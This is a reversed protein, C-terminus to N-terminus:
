YSIQEFHATCQGVPSLTGAGGQQGFVLWTNPAFVDAGATQQAATTSGVIMAQANAAVAIPVGLTTTTAFATNAKAITIITATTSSVTESISWFRLSSTGAPAQIACVTTTGTQLDAKQRWMRQGGVSVYPSMIDPSSVAGTNVKQVEHTIERVTETGGLFVSAIVAVIGVVGSFIYNKNM